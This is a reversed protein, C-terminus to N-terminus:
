LSYFQTLIVTSYRNSLPEIIFIYRYYLLPTHFCSLSPLSAFFLVTNTYKNIFGIFTLHLYQKASYKKILYYLFSNIVLICISVMLYRTWKLMIREVKNFFQPRDYDPFHTSITDLAM